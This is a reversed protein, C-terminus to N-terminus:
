MSALYPEFSEVLVALKDIGAILQDAVDSDPQVIATVVAGGAEEIMPLSVESHDDQRRVAPLRENLGVLGFFGEPLADRM